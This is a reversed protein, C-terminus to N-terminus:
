SRVHNRIDNNLSDLQANIRAADNAELQGRYHPLSAERSVIGDLSAHFRRAENRSLDGHDLGRDIRDRIRDERERIDFREPGSTPASRASVAIWRDGSDYYGNVQPPVWRGSNDYYGEGGTRWSGNVDYYGNPAGSVWRGDRDYYGNASNRDVANVHWAGQNDYYGYAHACETKPKSVQNGIIGGVLAGLVGGESKAGHGAVNSGVVAGIGAGAVTGVVRNTQQRECSTQASAAMPLVAAAAICAAIHHIRM